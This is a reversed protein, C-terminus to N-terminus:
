NSSAPPQETGSARKKKKKKTLSNSGSKTSSPVRNRLADSQEELINFPFERLTSDLKEIDKLVISCEDSTRCSNLQNVLTNMKSEWSKHFEM